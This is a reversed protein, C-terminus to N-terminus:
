PRRTVNFYWMHSPLLSLIYSMTVALSINQTMSAPRHQSLLCFLKRDQSTVWSPRLTPRANKLSWKFYPGPNLSSTQGLNRGMPANGPWQLEMSPTMSAGFPDTAKRKSQAFRETVDKALNLSKTSKFNINIEPWFWLFLFIPPIVSWDVLRDYLEKPWECLLM